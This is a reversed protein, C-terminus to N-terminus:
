IKRTFSQDYALQIQETDSGASERYKCFLGPYCRQGLKEAKSCQPEYYSHGSIVDYDLEVEVRYKCLIDKM